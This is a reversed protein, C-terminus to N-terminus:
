IWYVRNLAQASKRILPKVLGLDLDPTKQVFDFQRLNAAADGMTCIEFLDPHAALYGLLRRFRSIVIRDPRFSSYLFDRPKVMSFPHLILVVDRLGTGHAQKLVAKMEALSVSSIAMPKWGRFRSLGSRASTLPIEVVDNIRQVLNPSPRNQPFSAAVGPSYSSDIVIGLSRLVALTNQDGRFGGARFAVPREGRLSLFLAAAESLLEYQAEPDKGTLGDGLARYRAFGEPTGEKLALSYNRFVPHTHLQVDQRHDLLYDVVIKAQDMGLCQSFFVETFFTARFGHKELEGVILPLGYSVDDLACFISKDISLPRYNAGRWAGAM